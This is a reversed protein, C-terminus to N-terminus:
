KVECKDAAGATGPTFGGSNTRRATLAAIQATLAVSEQDLMRKAAQLAPVDVGGGAIRTTLMQIRADLATKKKTYITLLSDAMSCESFHMQKNFSDQYAQIEMLRDKLSAPKALDNLTQVLAGIKQSDAQLSKLNSLYTKYSDLGMQYVARTQDFDRQAYAYVDEVM